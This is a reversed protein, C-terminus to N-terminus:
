KEIGKRAVVGRAHYHKVNRMETVLDARDILRPDARRGTLVLEVGSPRNDMLDLLDDVALLGRSAAFNAEDLIVLPYEGSAVADRAEDLGRAALKMDEETPREGLFSGRGYRRLTILDAFRELAAHEGCAEGKAFQAIFVRVGAGVARLALGLAATTKGKGDGTYVHVYGREWPMQTTM